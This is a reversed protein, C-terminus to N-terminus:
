PTPMLTPPDRLVRVDIPAWTGGRQISNLSVPLPASVTVPVEQPGLTVRLGLATYIPRNGEDVLIVRAPPAASGQASAVPTAGNVCMWLLCAAIVTLVGKTYVDVTM